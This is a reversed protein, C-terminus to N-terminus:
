FGRKEELAEVVENIYRKRRREREEPPLPVAEAGRPAWAGREAGRRRATRRFAAREEIITTGLAFHHPQITQWLGAEIDSSPIDTRTFLEALRESAFTQPDFQDAHVLVVDRTVWGIESAFEADGYGQQELWQGLVAGVSPATERETEAFTRAAPRWFSRVREAEEEQFIARPDDDAVVPVGRPVDDPPKEGALLAEYMAHLRQQGDVALLGFREIPQDALVTGYNWLEAMAPYGLPGDEPALLLDWESANAIETSIPAVEVTEPTGHVGALVVAVLLTGDSVDTDIVCVEGFTLGGGPPERQPLSGQPLERARPEDAAVPEREELLRLVARCRRCSAVHRDVGADSTKTFDALEDISPCDAM